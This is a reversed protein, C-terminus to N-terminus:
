MSTRKTIDNVMPAAIFISSYMGFLIGFLLVFSFSRLSEGGLLYLVVVIGWTSMSTLVTRSLTSNIAANVCSSMVDGNRSIERIRDFIIVTSNISYGVITLIAAIFIQDVDIQYGCLASVGYLAFVCLVDHTLTLIAAVGYQWKKFRLMIYLFMLLLVFFIAKKANKQISKAMSSEVKNSSIIIFSKTDENTDNAHRLGSCLEINKAIDNIIDKEDIESNVMYNTTLKYVNDMGYGVVEVNSSLSSQLKDRFTSIDIKDTTKIVMTRGGTFDIGLKLGGSKHLGWFGVIIFVTSATYPIFRHKIFNFSTNALLNETFAFSFRQNNLTRNKEKRSYVLRTIYIATFFSSVIGVILITAFGRISGVGYVYLMIGTLLTTINSDIITNKAKSYGIRLADITKAGRRLEEKIREFILINADIAMGITLVIGAIGSLSLATNLQALIGLIFLINFALAINAVLGSGNYVVVMFLLTMLIGIILSLAGQKKAMDSLTPMMLTEEIINMRAPLSGTKLVNILDKAEDITYSGSIMSVGDPIETNITPATYVKKDLTIAVSRGINNRTIDRWIKAGYSNMYISIATRGRDDVSQQADDIVDGTLLAEGDNDTKLPYFRVFEGVADDDSEGSKHTDNSKHEKTDVGRCLIFDEPLLERVDDRNFISEITNADQAKYIMHENLVIATESNFGCIHERKIINNVVEIIDKMKDRDYEIWFQLQAVGQLLKKFRETNNVGPVELQIRGSDKLRQINAQSTGYKDIRASIVCFAKDMAKDISDKLYKRIDDQKSSESIIGRTMNSMFCENLTFETKNDEFWKILDDVINDSHIDGLVKDIFKKHRQTALQVMLQKTDLELIVNMGGQLDLGFNLARSKIQEYTFGRGFIRYAEKNWVSDLYENKKQMDVKGDGLTALITAKQQVKYDIWTFSLYYLCILTTFGTVVRVLWKYKM